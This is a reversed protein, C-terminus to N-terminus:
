FFIREQQYLLSIEWSSLIGWRYPIVVTTEGEMYCEREERKFVELMRRALAETGFTVKRMWENGASCKKRQTGFKDVLQGVKMSTKSETRINVWEGANTLAKGKKIETNHNACVYVADFEEMIADITAFWDEDRVVRNIVIKKGEVTKVYEVLHINKM